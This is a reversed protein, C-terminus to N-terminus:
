KFDRTSYLRSDPQPKDKIVPTKHRSGWWAVAFCVIALAAFYFALAFRWSM